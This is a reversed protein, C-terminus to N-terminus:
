ETYTLLSNEATYAIHNGFGGGRIKQESKEYSKWTQMNHIQNHISINSVYYNRQTRALLCYVHVFLPHPFLRFMFCSLTVTQNTPIQRIIRREHPIKRM